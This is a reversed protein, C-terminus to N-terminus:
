NVKSGNAPQNIIKLEKILHSAGAFKDIIFLVYRIDVCICRQLELEFAINSSMAEWNGDFALGIINGEGDIVPSGSNGGTIDNNTIFCVPMQGNEGYIGYDKEYFLTKLKEPVLFEPNEPDEKELIGDLTTFHLYHVADRAIYDQVTGYSLRMTSNGDPYFNRTSDMEKLGAIYLRHGKEFSSRLDADKFYVKRYVANASLAITFAPDKELVKAEPQAIFQEFKERNSFLSNMMLNRTYAEYDNNYKQSVQDYFDPLYEASLNENVLKLMAAIIKMDTPANYEEMFSEWRYKLVEALSAIRSENAPSTKLAMYLDNARNAMAILECATFFCENTYQIVHKYVRREEVAKSILELANGFKTIRQEDANVWNSFASEEKEKIDLINLREFGQNQGISYKWYYSSIQYKSAYQINVKEDALMDNKLIDLRQGRIKIRNTNTIDMLERIEFTTMFRTTTAPYGLVMAFDGEEMGKLSVPLYHRPKLPVNDESYQAPKGDTGTYVRFISFDGTHRPWVWNDTVDGFNGISSPPAGVLRVDRFVEYVFLYYNNGGFMSKVTATYHTGLTAVQTISDAKLQLSSKRLEESLTDSVQYLMQESVDEMRVLFTVTLEPNPLEEKRSMAWFGDKLYNHEVSSHNQIYDNGCHHNTFLLGDESVMEGTCGGGFIVIADKLSSNNISYIDEASLKLGLANMTDINQKHILSLLWMGEDAILSNCIPAILLGFFLVLKRKM